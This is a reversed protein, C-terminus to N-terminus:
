INNEENTKLTEIQPTADQVIEFDVYESYYGNSEGLWRIDVYGKSTALKYFTWTFSDDYVDTIYDAPHESSNTAVEAILIPNGILDNLDGTVSEIYVYECCDQNHLMRYKTGDACEFHIEDDGLKEAKTLTKGILETFEREDNWM